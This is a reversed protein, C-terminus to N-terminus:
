YLVLPLLSNDSLWSKLINVIWRRLARYVALNYHVVPVEPFEMPSTKFSNWGISLYPSLINFCSILCSFTCKLGWKWSDGVKWRVPHPKLQSNPPEINVAKIIKLIYSIFSGKDINNCKNRHLDSYHKRGHMILFHSLVLM